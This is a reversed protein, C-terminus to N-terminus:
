EDTSELVVKVADVKWGKENAEKESAFIKEEAEWLTGNAKQELWRQQGYGNVLLVRRIFM